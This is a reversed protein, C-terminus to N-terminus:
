KWFDSSIPQFAAPRLKLVTDNRYLEADIVMEFAAPSGGKKWEEEVMKMGDLSTPM